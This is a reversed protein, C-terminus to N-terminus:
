IRFFEDFRIKAEGEENLASFIYYVIYLINYLYIKTECSFYNNIQIGRKILQTLVYFCHLLVLLLGCGHVTYVTCGGFLIIKLGVMLWCYGLFVTLYELVMCRNNFIVIKHRFYYQIDYKDHRSFLANMYYM